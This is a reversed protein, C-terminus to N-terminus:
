EEERLKVVLEGEGLEIQALSESEDLGILETILAIDSDRKLFELLSEFNNNVGAKFAEPMGVREFGIEQMKISGEESEALNLKLWLPADPSDINVYVIIGEPTIATRLDNAVGVKDALLVALESEDVTIEDLSLLDSEIRERIESSSSTSKEPIVLDANLFNKAPEWLFPPKFIVTYLTLLLLIIVLLCGASLINKMGNFLVFPLKFFNPMRFGREEYYDDRYRPEHRPKVYFDQERDNPKPDTNNEM